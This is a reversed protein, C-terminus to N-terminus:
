VPPLGALVKDPTMPFDRVRVGCANYIANTVAAGAGSISLEGLGKARIPNAQEDPEGIFHVEIPPVDAHSPIHYEALDNNIFKGNRPDLVADEHLAYGIGWILGGIVQSRATKPNLIRGAEYVGLVRRVRVEGTVANVAAEVFHAGYAAQSFAKATRGPRIHGLAEIPAGALLEPLPVRRNGAIAHGDKLTMAAPTADM